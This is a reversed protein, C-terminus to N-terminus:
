GREWIIATSLCKALPRHGKHWLLVTSTLIRPLEHEEGNAQLWTLERSLDDYDETAPDLILDAEKLRYPIPIQMTEM